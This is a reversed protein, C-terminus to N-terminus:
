FKFTVGLNGSYGREKGVYGKAGIDFKISNTEYTYGIEGIGTGGKLKPSAIDASAGLNPLSLNGKSKGDFEYRYALGAYIKSTDSFKISDKLGVQARLSTVSDFHTNVGSLVVDNGAVKSYIFKTYIDLENFSTLDYIKGLGLHAGYYTSSIKYEDYLGKNVNTKIKGVKASAETYFNNTFKFKGFAGGGIFETDGEGTVGNDLFSEFKSKGYEVFLATTLDGSPMNDAWAIGASANFGKVEIHSGTEYDKSGGNVFGFAVAKG